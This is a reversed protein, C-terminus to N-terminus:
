AKIKEKRFSQLVAAILLLWVLASAILAAKSSNYFSAPKFEFTIKHDGGPIMMGRLVYNTQIIPSEKGDIYAKWGRDYFIESFVAFQNGKGSSKYEIFDNDNKILKISATSDFQVADNLQAKYKEEVLATDKPNFNNLAKMVAAPNKEFQITKVFWCAGLAGSNEQVIQQNNKNDVTLVYKTNLMDLVHLNITQKRLQYNLLDEVISLKAPHYGGISHFHYSTLADNFVDQSLNLVRYYSTDKLISAEAPTPKFYNENMDTEDQFNNENLYRRGVTLLDISSLLLMAALAYTAKLKNKIFLWLVALSALLFIITRILDKGFITQRDQQFARYLSNSETANGQLLQTLYTKLQTDNIGVYDLSLYILGLLVILGGTIYSTLKLKKIADEKNKEDFFFQQLALMAVIPFLLQPIVLTMTPVRFKNYLPLHDFLFTNFAMFNKGWSMLIATVVAALIWWKHQSKIYVMGFLFLLCIVAGLYVPGGTFPQAGWYTGMQGAIQQAQEESAGKETLKQIFASNEPFRDTGGGGYIGPVILTFTEMKGYSWGFAYDIPLGTSKKTGTASTSDIILSGNRMTAKSYDNTTALTVANCAAGIGGAVIAIILATALHKYEKAKIWQIIFGITMFTAVILFYYTIQLHNQAILLASLLATLAAGWWYKKQYILWLAGLLAPVYGLALMQTDHGVSVIIESFTSYAYAISGLIGLWPKIQLVQSLFYFSICLLFFFGVPKPLFLLFLPHFYGVSIPNSTELIIQYAPMGGFLNNNWLPYNGHKEKYNVLDQAMGKWQNVDSQQLVKGDFAPKCYIIAILAFVIIAILHPLLTKWQFNKM